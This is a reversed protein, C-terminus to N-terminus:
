TEDDSLGGETGAMRYGGRDVLEAYGEAPLWVVALICIPPM